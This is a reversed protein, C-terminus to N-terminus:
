SYRDSAGSPPFLYSIQHLATPIDLYYNNFVIRGHRRYYWRRTMAAVEAGVKCDGEPISVKPKEGFAASSTPRTPDRVIMRRVSSRMKHRSIRSVRGAIAKWSQQTQNCPQWVNRVNLKSQQRTANRRKQHHVILNQDAVEESTPLRVDDRIDALRTPGPVTLHDLSRDQRAQANPAQIRSAINEVSM